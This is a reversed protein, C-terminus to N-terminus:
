KLINLYFPNAQLRIWIKRAKVLRILQMCIADLKEMGEESDTFDNASKIPKIRRSIISVAQYIQTLIELVFGRDYMFPRQM